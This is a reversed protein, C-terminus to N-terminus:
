LLLFLHFVFLYNKQRSKQSFSNRLVTALQTQPSNLATTHRLCTITARLRNPILATNKQVFLLRRRLFCFVKDVFNVM